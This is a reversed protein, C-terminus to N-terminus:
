ATYRVAQAARQKQADLEFRKNAHHQQNSYMEFFMPLTDLRNGAVVLQRFM